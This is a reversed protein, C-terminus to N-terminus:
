RRPTQMMLFNAVLGSLGCGLAFALMFLHSASPAVTWLLLFIVGLSAVILTYATMAWRPRGLSCKFIGSVPLLLVGFCVAGIFALDSNLIPWLALCVLALLFLTGVCYSGLEQDRSLAHRGYRNFRLLLNFLPAAIWTLVAFVIYGIVIPMIWPRLQRNQDAIAWLFRYAVYAGIIVAWQGKQSLRDMWLFYRLMLAYIGNRAKLAEVLGARAFDLGPELRLAERFHELAKERQGEHLLAWGQNAHSYANEPDRALTGALTLKAEDNRGLKVLAMARLNNCGVHEADEELGHEAFELATLWDRRSFHIGGLEAFHNANHPELRLAEQIAAEAEDYYNRLHLVHALVAHGMASDPALRVAHYAEDTADSLKDSECLCRALLAHAMGDGPDVALAQRLKDAALDYRQQELLVLAHQFHKDM